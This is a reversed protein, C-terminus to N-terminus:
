QTRVSTAGQITYNGNADTGAWRFDFIPSFTKNISVRLYRRYTQGSGCMQDQENPYYYFTPTGTGTRCELWASTTVSTEPVDAATAAETKIAAITSRDAQGNMVKEIARQAVQELQLKISYGRAIDILGLLLVFVIPIALGLEMVATGRQDGKLRALM